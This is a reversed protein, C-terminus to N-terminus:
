DDLSESKLKLTETESLGFAKAIEELSIGMVLFHKVSKLKEEEAKIRAREQGIEIGEARGQEIGKKYNERDRNFLSAYQMKLHDSRKVKRVERDLEKVFPDDVTRGELYDLFAKIGPDINGKTGKTNFFIKHTGDGLNLNEVEECKNQFSYRYQGYKFIDEMCIFM